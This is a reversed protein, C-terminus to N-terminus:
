QGPYSKPIHARCGWSINNKITALLPNHLGGLISHCLEMSPYRSISAGAEPNFPSLGRMAPPPTPISIPPHSIGVGAAPQPCLSFVWSPRVWGQELRRGPLPKAKCLLWAESPATRVPGMQKNRAGTCPSNFARHCQSCPTPHRGLVGQWCRGPLYRGGARAQWSSGRADGLRSATGM